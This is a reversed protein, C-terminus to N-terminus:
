KTLKFDYRFNSYILKKDQEIVEATSFGIFNSLKKFFDKEFWTGVVDIEEKANNFYVAERELTNYFEWLKKKDPIDGLFFIGGPKLWAYIQEFLKITESHTLYQIGAYIIIKDFSKDEYSLCRIDSDKVKINPYQNTNITNILEISIDISTINKVKSSLHRSILGNGCCLELLDDDKKPEIAKEITTLTFKWIDDSIPEKNLTRLVQSHEDQEKSNKTYTNWFNIWYDNQNSM